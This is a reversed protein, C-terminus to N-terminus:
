PKGTRGGAPGPCRGRSEDDHLRRPEIHFKYRYAIRLRASGLWGALVGRASRQGAPCGGPNAPAVAAGAPAEHRMPTEVGRGRGAGFRQRASSSRNCDPISAAEHQHSAPRGTTRGDTRGDTGGWPRDTPLDTPRCGPLWGAVFM